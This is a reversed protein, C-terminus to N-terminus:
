PTMNQATVTSAAPKLLKKRNHRLDLGSRTTPYPQCLSTGRM